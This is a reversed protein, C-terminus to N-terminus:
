CLVCYPITGGDELSVPSGVDLCVVNYHSHEPTYCQSDEGQAPCVTQLAVNRGRPWDSRIVFTSSFDWVVEPFCIFHHIGRPIILM